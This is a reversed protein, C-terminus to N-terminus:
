AEVGGASELQDDAIRKSHVVGSNAMLDENKQTTPRLRSGVVMWALTPFFM